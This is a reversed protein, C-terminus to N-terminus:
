PLADNGSGCHLMIEIASETVVQCNCQCLPEGRIRVDTREPSAGPVVALRRSSLRGVAVSYPLKGGWGHRLSSRPQVASGLRAAPETAGLAAMGSAEGFRVKVCLSSGIVLPRTARRDPHTRREWIAGSHPLISRCHIKM